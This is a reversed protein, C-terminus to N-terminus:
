MGKGLPLCVSQEGIDSYIAMIFTDQYSVSGTVKM